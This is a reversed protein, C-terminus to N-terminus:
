LLGERREEEYLREQVFSKLLTQYGLHKKQALRKLRRLTDEEVSLSIRKSISRARAPPFMEDGEEPVSRMQELLSDSFSHTSWFEAEEAESMGQPIDKMDQVITFGEDDIEQLRKLKNSM